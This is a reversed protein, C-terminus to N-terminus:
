GLASSSEIHSSQHLRQWQAMPKKRIENKAKKPDSDANELRLIGVIFQIKGPAQALKVWQAFHMNQRLKKNQKVVKMPRICPM